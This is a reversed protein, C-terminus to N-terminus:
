GGGTVVITINEGRTNGEADLGRWSIVGRIGVEANNGDIEATDFEAVTLTATEEPETELDPSTFPLTVPESPELTESETRM